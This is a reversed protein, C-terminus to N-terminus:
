CLCLTLKWNFISEFTYSSWWRASYVSNRIYIRNPHYFIGLLVKHFQNSPLEAWKDQSQRLLDEEHVVSSAISNTTKKRVSVVDNETSSTSWNLLSPNSEDLDYNDDDSKNCVPLDKTASLDVIETPSTTGVAGVIEETLLELFPFPLWKDHSNKVCFIPHARQGANKALTTLLELPKPDRVCFNKSLLNKKISVIKVEEDISQLVEMLDVSDVWITNMISLKVFGQCYHQNKIELWKMVLQFISTDWENDCDRPIIDAAIYNYKSLFILIM